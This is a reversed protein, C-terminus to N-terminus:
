NDNSAILAGNGDHLGLMTDPLVGPVGLDSLSPGIGRVIVRANPGGDGSIVFGGIMVDDGTGVLGRTSINALKSAAGVGLDYVEVLGTGSTEGRGRLIVTYSGPDLTRVIASELDNSPPINTAAIEAAQSDQWNDNQAITV